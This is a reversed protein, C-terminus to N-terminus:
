PGSRESFFNREVKLWGIEQYQQATLSADSNAKQEQGNGFVVPAGASLAKSWVQIHNSHALQKAALPGDDGEGKGTVSGDHGQFGTQTQGTTEVDIVGEQCRCSGETLFCSERRAVQGCELILRLSGTM